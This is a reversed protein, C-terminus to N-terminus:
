GRGDGEQEFRRDFRNSRLVLPAPAAGNATLGLEDDHGTIRSDHSQVREQLAEMWERLGRNADELEAVRAALTPRPAERPDAQTFDAM